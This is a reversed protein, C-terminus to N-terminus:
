AQCFKIAQDQFIRRYTKGGPCLPNAEASRGVCCWGRFEGSDADQVIADGCCEANKLSVRRNVLLLSNLLASGEGMM